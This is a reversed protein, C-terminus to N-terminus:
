VMLFFPKDTISPIRAARLPAGNVIGQITVGNRVISTAQMFNLFTQQQFDCDLEINKM